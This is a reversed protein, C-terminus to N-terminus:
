GLKEAAPVKLYSKESEAIVLSAKKIFAEKGAANKNTFKSCAAMEVSMEEAAYLMVMAKRVAAEKDPGKSTAPNKVAIVKQRAAKGAANNTAAWMKAAM